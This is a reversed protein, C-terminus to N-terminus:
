HIWGVRFWGALRGALGFWAVPFGAAALFCAAGFLGAVPKDTVRFRQKLHLGAAAAIGAVGLAAALAFGGAYVHRSAALAFPLVIAALSLVASAIILMLAATLRGRARLVARVGLGIGAYGFGPLMALLVPLLFIGM